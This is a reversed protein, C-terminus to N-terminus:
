REVGRVARASLSGAQRVRHPTRVVLALARSVEYVCAVLFARILTRPRVNRIRTMMRGFRIAALLAMGALGYLALWGGGFPGLLLGALTCAMLALNSLPIVISPLSRLTYPGRLSVRLNDRGRWLEGFFLARLTSPDGLHVSRLRDDNFLM